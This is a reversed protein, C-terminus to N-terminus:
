FEEKRPIPSYIFKNNIKDKKYFGRRALDDMSTRATEYVTKEAEKFDNVTYHLGITCHGAYFHAQKRKLDPYLKILRDAIENIEIYTEPPFFPLAKENSETDETEETEESPKEESSALTERIEKENNELSTLLALVAYTLDSNDQTAKLRSFIKKNKNFSLTEIALSIAALTFGSNALVAKVLISATEENSYEYPKVSLFFYVIIIAKLVLPIEQDNITDVLSDLMREIQTHDPQTLPNSFDEITSARYRTKSEEDEMILLKNINDILDRNIEDAQLFKIYAHNYAEAMSLEVPINSLSGSIIKRLSNDSPTLGNSQCLISLAKLKFENTLEFRETLTLSFFKLENKLLKRELAYARSLLTSTLCISYFNDDGDRLPTQYDYYSRYDRVKRLTDAIDDTNYYNAIEEKTAYFIDTFRKGQENRM